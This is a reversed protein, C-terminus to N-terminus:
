KHQNRPRSLSPFSFHAFVNVTKRYQKVVFICRLIFICSKQPHGITCRVRQPTEFEDTTARLATSFVYHAVVCHFRSRCEYTRLTCFESSWMQVSHQLMKSRWLARCMKRVRSGSDYKMIKTANSDDDVIFFQTVVDIRGHWLFIYRMWCGVASVHRSIKRMKENASQLLALRFSSSSPNILLMDFTSSFYFQDESNKEIVWMEIIKYRKIRKKKERQKTPRKPCSSLMCCDCNMFLGNVLCIWWKNNNLMIQKSLKAAYVCVRVRVCKSTTIFLPLIFVDAFCEAALLISHLPSLISVFIFHSVHSVHNVVPQQHNNTIQNQSISKYNWERERDRNDKDREKDRQGTDLLNIPKNNSDEITTLETISSLRQENHKM